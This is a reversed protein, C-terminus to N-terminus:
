RFYPNRKKLETDTWNRYPLVVQAWTDIMFTTGSKKSRVGMAFHRFTRSNIGKQTGPHFTHWKLYGTASILWLLQSAANTQHVCDESTPFGLFTSIMALLTRLEQSPSSTQKLPKLIKEWEAKTLSIPTKTSASCCGKGWGKSECECRGAETSTYTAFKDKPIPNFFTGLDTGFVNGVTSCRSNENIRVHAFPNIQVQDNALLVKISAEVSGQECPILKGKISILYEIVEEKEQQSEILHPKGYKASIQLIKEAAIGLYSTAYVLTKIKQILSKSPINVLAYNDKQLVEVAQKFIKAEDSGPKVKNWEVLLYKTAKLKERKTDLLIPNKEQAAIRALKPLIKSKFLSM